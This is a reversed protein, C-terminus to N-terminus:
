WAAQGAGNSWIPAASPRFSPGRAARLMATALQVIRDRVDDDDRHPERRTPSRRQLHGIVEDLESSAHILDDLLVPPPLAM